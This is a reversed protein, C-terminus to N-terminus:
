GGLAQHLRQQAQRQMEEMYQQRAQAQLAPDPLGRPAVVPMGASGGPPVGPVRGEGPAPLNLVVVIKGDKVLTAQRAKVVRLVWGEHDEGVRLRIVSRTASDIFVGIQEDAKSGIITGDMSLTPREPEASKVTQQLSVPTIVTQKPPSPRRSPSFIPRDRTM